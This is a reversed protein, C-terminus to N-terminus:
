KQKLTIYTFNDLPPPIEHPSLKTVGRNKSCPWRIHSVGGGNLIRLSCFTGRIACFFISPFIEVGFQLVFAKRDGCLRPTLHLGVCYQILPETSGPM